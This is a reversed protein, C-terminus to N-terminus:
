VLCWQYIGNFIYTEKHHIFLSSNGAVWRTASGSKIMGSVEMPPWVHKTCRIVSTINALQVQLKVCFMPRRIYFYSFCCSRVCSVGHMSFTIYIIYVCVHICCIYLNIRTVLFVRQCELTLSNIDNHPVVTRANIYMYTYINYVNIHAVTTRKDVAMLESRARFFYMIIWDLHLRGARILPSQVRKGAVM